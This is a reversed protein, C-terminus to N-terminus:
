NAITWDASSSTGKSFYLKGAVTDVYFNGIKEPTSSPATTGSTINPLAYILQPADTGFQIITGAPWDLKYNTTETDPDGNFNLGRKLITISASAITSKDFEMIEITTGTDNRFVCFARDGFDSATLAINVGLANKAWGKINSVKFSSASSSISQTLSKQPVSLPIIKSM